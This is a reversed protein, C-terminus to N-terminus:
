IYIFNLGSNKMELNIPSKKFIATSLSFYFHFYSFAQSSWILNNKIWFVHLLAINQGCIQPYTCLIFFFNSIYIKNKKPSALIM